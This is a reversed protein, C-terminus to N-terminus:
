YDHQGRIRPEPEEKLVHVVYNILSIAKPSNVKSGYNLSDGHLVAHRNLADTDGPREHESASIPLTQALPSLLAAQFADTAIEEVYIATRPKKNHRMFLYQSVTEKCVGDTQALLVPISLEYEQRRPAKFAATRLHTRHPCKDILSKEIKDLRNEFHVVLAKEAEEVNGESLAKKLEWLGPFTMEMDMYWGHSGLILLAEQTRPPLERFTRQLEELVPSVLRGISEQIETAQTALQSLDPPKLAELMDKYRQQQSVVSALMQQFSQQQSVFAAAAQELVKQTTSVSVAIAQYIQQNELLPAFSRQLSEHINIAPALQKNILQAMRQWQNLFDDLSGM